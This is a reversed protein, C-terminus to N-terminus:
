HKTVGRLIEGLDPDLEYCMRKWVAEYAKRAGAKLDEGTDAAAVIIALNRLSDTFTVAVAAYAESTSLPTDKDSQM